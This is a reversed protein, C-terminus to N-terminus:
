NSRTWLRVKWGVEILIKFTLKDIADRSSKLAGIKISDNM